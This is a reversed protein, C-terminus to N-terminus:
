MLHLISAGGSSQNCSCASWHACTQESERSRLQAHLRLSQSVLGATLPLTSWYVYSSRLSYFQLIKTCNTANVNVAVFFINKQCKVGHIKAPLERTRFTPIYKGKRWPLLHLVPTVDLLATTVTYRTGDSHRMFLWNQWDCSRVAWGRSYHSWIEVNIGAPPHIHPNQFTHPHQMNIMANYVTEDHQKYPYSHPKYLILPHPSPHNQAKQPPHIHPNQFTHPHQM